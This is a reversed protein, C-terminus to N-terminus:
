TVGGGRDSLTKGSKIQRFMEWLMSHMLDLPLGFIIVEPSNLSEWFGVSYRFAPQAGEALVGQSFFGFEEVKDVVRQDEPELSGGVEWLSVAM